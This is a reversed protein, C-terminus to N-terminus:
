TSVLSTHSSPSMTPMLMMGSSMLIILIQFDQTMQAVRLIERLSKALASALNKVENLIVLFILVEKFLYM